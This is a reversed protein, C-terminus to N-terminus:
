VVILTGGCSVTRPGTGRRCRTTVNLKGRICESGSTDTATSSVDMCGSTRPQVGTREGGREVRISTSRSRRILVVSEDV